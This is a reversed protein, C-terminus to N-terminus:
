RTPNAPGVAPRHTGGPTGHGYARPHARDSSAKAFRGLAVGALVAGLVLAGPNRRAFRNMQDMMDDVSTSEISHAVHSLSDAAENVFRAAVSQERDGLEDGAKHLATAFDEINDAAYRKGEDAYASAARRAEEAAREAQDRVADSAEHLKEEASEAERQLREQAAEADKQLNEKTSM